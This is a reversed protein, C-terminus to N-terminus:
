LTFLAQNKMLYKNLDQLINQRHYSYLMMTVNTTNMNQYINFMNRVVMELNMNQYLLNHEEYTILPKNIRTNVNNHFVFMFYRLQDLTNILNFKNLKFYSKAHTSCIPCPLNSVIREIITKLENIQPPSMTDKAKVSLCHLLRWTPPGWVNKSMIYLSM